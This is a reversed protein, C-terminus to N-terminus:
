KSSMWPASYTGKDVLELIYSAIKCSNFQEHMWKMGSDAIKKREEENKLYWSSVDFFEEITDFFKLNQGDKYLRDCDKMRKAMVFTGCAMYHTLRDSHCFKVDGYANVNVGIKAGSVAHFYDLGGIQPRGLCGYITCNKQKALRQVLEKRFTDSKDASHEIKGTWLIDTKWEDTVEYRHDTDPDCMNPMFICHKVGGDRYDQLFEGDNTATLIDLEKATEIRGPQLKPWPDGDGGIFISKPSVARMARITEADLFKAFGVYVIDPRYHKIQEALLDDVKQKYFVNALTRSKFPSIISFANCYSFMRVDHGLRIFGKALKPMQDLFMKISKYKIDAVIFIRKSKHMDKIGSFLWEELPQRPYLYPRLELCQSVDKLLRTLLSPVTTAVYIILNEMFRLYKM